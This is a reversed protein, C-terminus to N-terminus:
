DSPRAGGAAPRQDTRDMARAMQLHNEIVPATRRAWDKLAANDGNQAFDRMLNLTNEHAEVQHEIYRADLEAPAASRLQRVMEQRRGDLQTPSPLDINQARAQELHQRIMPLGKAAHAKLAANGGNSAYGEALTVAEQHAAVQQNAYVDDFNNAPAQRLNDVLGQRREDLATPLTIQEGSQGVAAKLENSMQTHHDIMRQAYQKVQANQSRELAVRAANIEYMDSVAMAGAAVGPNAAATAASVTGVAQSTADQVANSAPNSGIGSEASAAEVPGDEVVENREGCAALALAAALAASALLTKKM